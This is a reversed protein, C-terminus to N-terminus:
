STNKKIKNEYLKREVNESFFKNELYNQNAKLKEDDISNAMKYYAWDETSKDVTNIQKNEQINQVLQDINAFNGGINMKDKMKLYRKYSSSTKDIKKKVTYIKGAYMYKKEIHVSNNEYFSELATKVVNSIDNSNNENRCKQKFTKISMETENKDEVTHSHPSVQMASYKNLHNYLKEITNYNKEEQPYKKHFQLLFDEDSVSKEHTYLQEYEKNIENFTKEIKEKIISNKIANKIKRPTGENRRKNRKGKGFEERLLKAEGELEEKLDDSLDDGCLEKKLSEEVDYNEDDEDSSPFEMNLITAM